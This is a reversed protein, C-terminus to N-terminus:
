ECSNLYHEFGHALVILARTEMTFTLKWKLFSVQLVAAELPGILNLRTAASTMDRLAMFLYARQVPFYYKYETWKNNRFKRLLLKEQWRKGDGIM